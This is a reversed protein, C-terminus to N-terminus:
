DHNDPEVCSWKVQPFRARIAVELSNIQEIAQQEQQPHVKCALMVYPGMQLTILRYLRRVVPRAEIFRSLDAEIEAGASQGIMLGYIERMLTLSILVLIGGVVMSGLADFVPNGTALSLLLSVFAVLLGALAAIDEALVVILESQRSDRYFQWLSRGGAIARIDKVCKSLSIAEALVSYALVGMILYPLPLSFSWGLVHMERASLDPAHGSQLTHWGEYLAFLGGLGFLMMAVIFGWFYSAKGYGLPHDADPARASQRIGWFLLVQNACDAFSHIAEALMSSSQTMAAAISKVIAISLNAFLAYVIAGTSSHGSM